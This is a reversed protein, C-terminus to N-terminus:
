PTVGARHGTRVSRASQNGNDVVPRYDWARLRRVRGPRAPAAVRVSPQSVGFANIAPLGTPTAGTDGRGTNLRKITSSRPPHHFLDRGAEQKIGEGLGDHMDVRPHDDDIGPVLIQYLVFEGLSGRPIPRGRM